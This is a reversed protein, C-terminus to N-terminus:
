PASAEDASAVLMAEALAPYTAVRQVHDRGKVGWRLREDSPMDRLRVFAAALAEPDEGPVSIECGADLGPTTPTSIHSVLPRGAAMYEFAKNPSIGHQYLPTDRGGYCLADMTRMLLRAEAPPVADHFHIAPLDGAQRILREKETGSGFLHFEIAEATLLRAAAVLTDLDNPIGHAGFYGVRFQSSTAPPAPPDALLDVPVGNSVHSWKRPDLGRGVLYPKTAPLISVVADARRCAYDEEHQMMRIVPHRSSHGGLLQPTLPWLDHVEYVLRSGAIDAIRAAPRVDFPHTSSAIVIDPRGKALRATERWLGAIFSGINVMRAAGNGEHRTVPLLLFRVGEITTVGRRTTPQTRRLHTWDASVVLVEHGMRIWERAMWHPRYEMGMDPSGAYQNILLLRM